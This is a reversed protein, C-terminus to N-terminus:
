TVGEEKVGTNSVNCRLLLLAFCHLPVALALGRSLESTSQYLTNWAAMLLWLVM